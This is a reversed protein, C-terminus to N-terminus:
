TSVRAELLRATGKHLSVVGIPAALLVALVGATLILEGSELGRELAA